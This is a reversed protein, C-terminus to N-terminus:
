CLRDAYSYVGKDKLHRPAALHSSLVVV